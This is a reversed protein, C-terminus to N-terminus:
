GRARLKNRVEHQQICCACSGHTIMCVGGFVTFLGWFLPLDLVEVLTPASPLFPLQYLAYAVTLCGGTIALHGLLVTFGRHRTWGIWWGFVMFFVGVSIGIFRYPSLTLLFQALSLLTVALGMFFTKPAKM